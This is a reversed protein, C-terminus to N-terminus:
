IGSRTKLSNMQEEVLLIVRAFHQGEETLTYEIITRRFSKNAGSRLLGLSSLEQLSSCATTKCM